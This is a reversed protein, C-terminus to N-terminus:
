TSSTSISAAEICKDIRVVRIAECDRSSGSNSARRDEEEAWGRTCSRIWPEHWRRVTTLHHTLSPLPWQRLISQPHRVQHNNAGCWLGGYRKSDDYGVDMCRWVTTQECPLLWIELRQEVTSRSVEYEVIHVKSYRSQLIELHGGVRHLENIRAM